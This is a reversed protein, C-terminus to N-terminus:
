RLALATTQVSPPATPAFGIAMVSSNFPTKRSIMRTSELTKQCVMDMHGQLILTPRDEAKAPCPMTGQRTQRPPATTNQRGLSLGTAIAAENKSGRSSVKEFNKLILETPNM